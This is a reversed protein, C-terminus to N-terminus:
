YNDPHLAPDYSLPNCMYHESHYMTPNACFPCPRVELKYLMWLLKVDYSGKVILDKIIETCLPEKYKQAKKKSLKEPLETACNGCIKQGKNGIDYLLGHMFVSYMLAAESHHLNSEHFWTDFFVGFDALDRKQTGVTRNTAWTVWKWLPADLPVTKALDLALGKTFPGPYKEVKDDLGNAYLKLSQAFYFMQMSGIGHYSAEDMMDDVEKYEESM